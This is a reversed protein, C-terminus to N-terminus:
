KLTIGLFDTRLNKRWKVEHHLQNTCEQPRPNLDFQIKNPINKITPLYTVNDAMQDPGQKRHM